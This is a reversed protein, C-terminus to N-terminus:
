SNQDKAVYCGGETAAKVMQQAILRAERLEESLKAIKEEAIALREMAARLARDGFEDCM